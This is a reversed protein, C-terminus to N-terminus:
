AYIGGLIGNTDAGTVTKLEVSEKHLRKYALWAFAMAEMNDSSVGYADTSAVEVSPLCRQLREMLFSNRVGGGCVLLLEPEFKMVEDAISRVTLESITAQIDQPDLHSFPQLKSELWGSNFYERGTSKPASKKFYLDDLLRELLSRDITGSAAWQGDKDYPLSKHKNVWGDILVNGPGTDYGTLQDGILTINAMGGINVIACRQALNHFLFHHFAPAFPAGQGGLAMDKRRFDAVVKVGTRTTVINPDGLQMTFPMKSDPAHWLTQGHLGIAEIRETDLDYKAILALVADAFLHGLRHDIEGMKSLSATGGIVALIEEKLSNEFPYELSAALEIGDAGVPCIVVDVGDMSTGSMVGIYCKKM